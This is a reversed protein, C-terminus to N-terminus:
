CRPGGSSRGAELVYASEWHQTAVSRASDTVGCSPSIRAAGHRIFQVLPFPHFGTLSHPINGQRRVGVGWFFLIHYIYIYILLYMVNNLISLM